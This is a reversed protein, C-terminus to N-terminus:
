PATSRPPFLKAATQITQCLIWCTTKSELLGCFSLSILAWLFETFDLPYMDIQTEYGVPISVIDKYDIGLLSGTAIVDYRSDQAWFKLSTRASPCEQIEDLFLLTKGPVFKLDPSLLTIGQIMTDVDLSGDFAQKMEPREIFNIEVTNEYHSKAFERVIYTKGCQRVGRIVLCGNDSSEKWNILAKMIKRQLM